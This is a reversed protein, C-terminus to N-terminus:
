AFWPCLRRPGGSELVFRPEWGTVQGANPEPTTEPLKYSATATILPPFGQEAWITACGDGVVTLEARIAPFGGRWNLEVGRRNGRRWGRHGDPGRLGAPLRNGAQHASNDIDKRQKDNRDDQPM